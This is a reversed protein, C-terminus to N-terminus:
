RGPKEATTPALLVSLLRWIEVFVAPANVVELVHYMSSKPGQLEEFIASILPKKKPYDWPNDYTAKTISVQLVTKPLLGELEGYSARHQSLLPYRIYPRRTVHPVFRITRLFSRTKGAM